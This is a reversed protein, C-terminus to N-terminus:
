QHAGAGLGAPLVPRARSVQWSVGGPVVRETRTIRLRGDALYQLHARDFALGAGAVLAMYDGHATEDPAETGSTDWTIDPSTLSGAGGGRRGSGDNGKLASYIRIGDTLPQTMYDPAFKGYRAYRANMRNELALMGPANRVGEVVRARIAYAVAHSYPHQGDRLYNMTSYWGRPIWYARGGGTPVRTQVWAEYESFPQIWEHSPYGHPNLYTDPLWADILQKRTRSEPYIPDLATASDAVDAALSGHYGLHLVNDPTIAAMDVSMQAGDPNTIPHLVVNVQRLLDHMAPQTLIQEVLKDVHSTSSVENAHQRASYLIVAKLTTEKAMSRLVSPSPETVDAAWINEGLYSRGMWYATVGPYTAFRALIGASEAPPIAKEWQVIPTHTVTGNYDAIMPRPTAPAGIALSAYVRESPTDVHADPALPLELAISMKNLHPYALDDRYLGAAHMQGLWHLEGEAKEVSFISREVQERDDVKLWGAYDEKLFDAPLLWTLNEVADSGAKVRADILRPMMKGGVVALDREQEHPHGQADTWALRVLPNPAPKAYFEIRVHGDKGEDAAPQHVVPIIRGVYTLPEGVELRGWMEMFNETSYFADEQFDELPSIREKDLGLWYEPESAHVDIKLTDFPPVFERKLKGHAQKMVLRYVRPLTVSQYHDWVEELDTAIRKDLVVRSGAQIHVWGTDVQVQEYEPFMGNYPRMITTATFDRSLLTQGAADLARVRYTPDGKKPTFEALTVKEIPLQLKNALLEDAPYLEQVWRAPSLMGRMGSADIDKAFEIKVSAVPKGALAPAIDEMLWSLGQKWASLVQVHLRGRDAGAKVLLDEIQTQLKARQEPSESVRALVTVPEGKAVKSAAGQVADILRTGEWPIVIDEAFTPAAQHFPYDPGHFHLDPSQDCCRTGAHLSATTVLANSVGLGQQVEKRVFETLGPDALDVYVQASVRSAPGAQKISKMWDDLTFLAASAQGATSRLSFFRHLDYRIEELSLYPKGPEWLNPFRGALLDLAAAAGTQDGRALVAGRRGFTDDVVRLEGEGPSLRPQAPQAAKDESQLKQEVARALASDGAVVAQTRVQRPDADDAFAIPLTIGTTELGMRAALNAMAVGEAGASVYLHANSASPIPMRPSGTFLGHETYLTALDLENHAGAAGGGPAGGASDAAAAGGGGAAGAAAAPVPKAVPAPNRVTVPSAGGVVTLERVAALHTPTFVAALVSETVPFSARVVARHIGAEGHRYVVGALEAGSGHGAADVAAAIGALTEGPVEWQYPARSAYGEAAATLGAADGGVMALNGRVLFVGGEGAALSGALSTLEAGVGDPVGQGIWIVPGSSPAHSATVVLPLTLGTSGYATRAAVNAAAANEAATSRDGVVIKGAVADVVQDGNTDALMWGATFPDSLHSAATPSQSASVGKSYATAWVIPVSLVVVGLLWTRRM